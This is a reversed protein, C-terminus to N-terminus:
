RKQSLLTGVEEGRSFAGLIDQLDIKHKEREQREVEEKVSADTVKRKQKRLSIRARENPYHGKTQVEKAWKQRV